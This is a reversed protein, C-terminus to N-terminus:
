SKKNIKFLLIIGFIMFILSLLQGMGIPGLYVEPERTFDILFRLGNYTILFWSTIVGPKLKKFYKLYLVVQFVIMNKISEFIQSPFREEGPYTRSFEIGFISNTVKGVLEQNIFNAIRGFALVLSMPIVVLDLAKLFNIKYKKSFYYFSIFGFLLGGHISMGGKDFRIIELPNTIFYEFNYFLIHFIRGGIVGIIMSYLLLNELNEKSTNLEKTYKLMFWLTFVFGIAYVIGYWYINIPGLSIAIPNIDM